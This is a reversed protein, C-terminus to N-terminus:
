ELFGIMIMVAESSTTALEVMSDIRALAEMYNMMAQDVESITTMTWVASTTM